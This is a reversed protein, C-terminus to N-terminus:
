QQIGKVRAKKSLKVLTRQIDADSEGQIQVTKDIGALAGALVGVAAGAMGIFWVEQVQHETAGETNSTDKEVTSHLSLRAAGALLFGGMGLEFMLSKNNVKISDIDSIHITSDTETAEDLILLSDKKVTVLEGTVQQAGILQIELKVGKREAASLNGTLAMLSFLLILATLKEGKIKM